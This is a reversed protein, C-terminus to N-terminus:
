RSFRKVLRKEIAEIQGNPYDIKEDTKFFYFLITHVKESDEASTLGGITTESFQSTILSHNNSYNKWFWNKRKKMSNISTDDNLLEPKGFEKVLFEHVVDEKGLYNLVLEIAVLDNTKSSKVFAITNGNPLNKGKYSYVTDLPITGIKYSTENETRYATLYESFESIDEKFDKEDKFNELKLDELNVKLIDEIISKEKDNSNENEAM